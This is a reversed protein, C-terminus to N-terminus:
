HQFQMSSQNQSQMLQPTVGQDSAKKLWKRAKYQNAKVGHGNQYVVGIWYQAQPYGQEAAKMLLELGKKFDEKELINQTNFYLYGLTTLAPAYDKDVAMNLMALGKDIDKDVNVGYMYWIALDYLASPYQRKALEELIEKAADRDQYEAPGNAYLLALNYMAINYDQEAAEDLWYEAEDIDFGVGINHTYFSALTFQAPAYGQEASETVWRVAESVKMNNGFLHTIGYDLKAPAFNQEASLRFCEIAKKPNVCVEIGNVYCVGLSYLGEALGQEAAKKFYDIAKSHNTEVGFGQYYCLGMFYQSLPTEGEAECQWHQVIKTSDNLEFESKMIADHLEKKVYEDFDDKNTIHPNAPNQWVVLPEHIFLAYLVSLFLVFSLSLFITKKKPHTIKLKKCLKDFYTDSARRSEYSGLLYDISLQYDAYAFSQVSRLAIPLDAIAVGKLITIINGIKRGSRKEEVFTRWESKVYTTDVYSAKSTFVILHDASELAADIIEGYVDRGKKRLEVDALFVNLGQDTLFHHIPLALHYDESKCSIFVDYKM